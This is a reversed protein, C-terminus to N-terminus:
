LAVPSGGPSLTLEDVPAIVPVGDVIPVKVTVIPALLPLPVPLAVRVKVILGGVGTMVLAAVAM